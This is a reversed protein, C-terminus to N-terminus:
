RERGVKLRGIDILGALAILALKMAKLTLERSVQTNALLEMTAIFM